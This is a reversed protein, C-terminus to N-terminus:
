VPALANEVPLRVRLWQTVFREVYPDEGGLLVCM